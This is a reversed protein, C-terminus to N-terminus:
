TEVVAHLEGIAMSPSGLNRGLGDSWSEARQASHAFLHFPTSGQCAITLHAPLLCISSSRSFVKFPPTPMFVETIARASVLVTISTISNAIGSMNIAPEDKSIVTPRNLM